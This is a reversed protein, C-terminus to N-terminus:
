RRGEEEERAAPEGVYGTMLAQRSCGGGGGQAAGQAGHRLDHMLPRGALSPPHFFPLTWALPRAFPPRHGPTSTCAALHTFLLVRVQCAGGVWRVARGVKWGDPTFRVGEDRLMGKKRRVNETDEGQATLQMTPTPGAVACVCVCMCVYVCVYM